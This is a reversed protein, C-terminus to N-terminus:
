LVGETGLRILITESHKGILQIAKSLNLSIRRTNEGKDNGVM